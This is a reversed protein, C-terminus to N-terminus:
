SSARRLFHRSGFVAVQVRSALQLKNAIRYVHSRVTTRGIHLSHAIEEDTCGEALLQFVERERESLASITASNITEDPLQEALLALIREAIAPSLFTDGRRAARIADDIGLAASGRELFARVGAQSAHVVGRTDSEDVLLVVPIGTNTLVAVDKEGVGANGVVIVDPRHRDTISTAEQVSSAEILTSATDAREIMSRMGLMVLPDNGCLLVCCQAGPLPDARDNSSENESM